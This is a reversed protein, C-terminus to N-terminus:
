INLPSSFGVCWLYLLLLFCTKPAIYHKKIITTKLIILCILNESHMKLSAYEATVLSERFVIETHIFPKVLHVSISM